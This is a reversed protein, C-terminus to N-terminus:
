GNSTQSDLSTRLGTSCKVKMQKQCLICIMENDCSSRQIPLSLIKMKWEPQYVLTSGKKEKRVQPSNPDKVKLLPIMITM